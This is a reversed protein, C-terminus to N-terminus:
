IKEAVVMIVMYNDPGADNKTLLQASLHETEKEIKRVLKKRVFYFMKRVVKMFIQVSLSNMSCLLNLSKEFQMFAFRMGGTLKYLKVVHFGNREMELALGDATWRWFDSPCPHDGFMGHTTLILKGNATLARAAESLYDSVSLVHELVQTSLVYDYYNSPVDPIKGNKIEFDIKLGGYVYDAKHYEQHPIITEYPSSGCGFDLIKSTPDFGITKLASLLDYLHFYLDDKINPTVRSLINKDSAFMQRLSVTNKHISKM